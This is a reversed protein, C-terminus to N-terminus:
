PAPPEAAHGSDHDDCQDGAERDRCWTDGRRGGRCRDFRQQDAVGNEVTEGLSVAGRTSGLERGPM